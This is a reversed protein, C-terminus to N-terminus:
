DRSVLVILAVVGAVILLLVGGLAILVWISFVIAM